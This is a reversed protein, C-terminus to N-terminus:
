LKYLRIEKPKYWVEEMEQKSGGPFTMHEVLTKIRKSLHSPLKKTTDELIDHYLLTLAGEERTKLDLNTETSIMTACWLPHIWYYTRGDWKRVSKGPKKPNKLHSEVVYTLDEPKM